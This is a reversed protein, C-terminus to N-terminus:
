KIGLHFDIFYIGMYRNGIVFVFNGFEVGFSFNLMVNSNM